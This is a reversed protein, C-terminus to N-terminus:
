RLFMSFLRPANAPMRELELLPELHVRRKAYRAGGTIFEHLEYARARRSRFLMRFTETHMGHNKAARLGRELGTSAVFSISSPEM